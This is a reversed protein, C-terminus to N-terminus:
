NAVDDPYEKQLWENNKKKKLVIKQHTDMIKHCIERDDKSNSFRVKLWKSILNGQQFRQACSVLYRVHFYMEEPYENLSSKEAPFDPQSELQGKFEQLIDEPSTALKGSTDCSEVRQDWKQISTIESALMNIEASQHCKKLASEKVLKRVNETHTRVLARCEKQWSLSDPGALRFSVKAAQVIDGGSIMKCHEILLRSGEVTAFYTQPDALVKVASIAKTVRKLEKKFGDADKEIQTIDNGFNMRNKKAEEKKADKSNPDQSCQLWSRLDQITKFYRLKLKSNLDAIAPWTKQLDAVQLKHSDCTKKLHQIAEEFPLHETDACMKAFTKSQKAAQTQLFSTQSDQAEASVAAAGLCVTSLSVVSM